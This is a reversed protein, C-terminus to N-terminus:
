EITRATPLIGSIAWEDGRPEFTVRYAEKEGRFFVMEHATEDTAPAVRWIGRAVVDLEYRRAADLVSNGTALRLATDKDNATVALVFQVFSSYPSPVPRAEVRAFGAARWEFRRVTYVHPCTACEEFRPVGRFTRTELVVSTDGAVGFNATGIGGLSDPGLTQSPDAGARETTGWVMLLPAQGSSARRGFLVAVGEPPGSGAGRTAVDLLQLNQGALPRSEARDRGHWFLWPWSGGEPHARAFFNVVVVRRDAAVEAGIDLSDLLARARMPWPDVAHSELDRRVIEASLRSAEAGGEPEDWRQQAERARIALSDTGATSTSDAGVPVFRTRRQCGAAGLLVLTSLALALAKM